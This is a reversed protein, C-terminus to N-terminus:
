REYIRSQDTFDKILEKETNLFVELQLLQVDILELMIYGKKNALRLGFFDNEDHAERFWNKSPNNEVYIEFSYLEYIQKGSDVSIETPILPNGQIVFVNEYVDFFGIGIQWYNPDIDNLSLSFHGEFYKNKNVGEYFNTGVEFWNGSLTGDVDYDIRGARPESKRAMKSLLQNRINEPFYPFPDHTYIKWPEVSEYAEPNIFYLPEDYNYVGFDLSQNGVYGILEGAKVYAGLFDGNENRNEEWKKELEPSLKTLLDFYSGFTCTHVMDLRFDPEQAQNSEVSVERTEINFIFADQIARVEYTYRGVPLSYFYMHDIPTIHGGVIQGYPLLVNIEEIKMPSNAFMVPGAGECKGEWRSRWQEDRGKKELEFTEDGSSDLCNYILETENEGPIYGGLVSEVGNPWRDNICKKAEESANKLASIIESDSETEQLEQKEVETTTTIEKETTVPTNTSESDGGCVIFIFVFVLLRKM